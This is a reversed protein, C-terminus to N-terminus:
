VAMHGAKRIARRCEGPENSGVQLDPLTACASHVTAALASGDKNADKDGRQEQEGGDQCHGNYKNADGKPHNIHEADVSETRAAQLGAAVVAIAVHNPAAGDRSCQRKEDPEDRLNDTPGAIVIM